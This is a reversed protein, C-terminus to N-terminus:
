RVTVSGKMGPHLTCRYYFTGKVPFARSWTGRTRIKDTWGKGKGVVNHPGIFKWTVRSGKAVTVARPSYVDGAETGAQVITASSAIPVGGVVVVSLAATAAVLALARNRKKLSENMQSNSCARDGPTGNKASM